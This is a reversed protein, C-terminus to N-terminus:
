VRTSRDNIRSYELEQASTAPTVSTSVQKVLRVRKVWINYPNKNKIYTNNLKYSLLRAGDTMRVLRARCSTDM